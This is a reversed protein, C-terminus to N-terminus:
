DRKHKNDEDQQKRLLRKAKCREAAKIAEESRPRSIGKLREVNFKINEGINKNGFM